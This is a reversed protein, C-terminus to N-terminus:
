DYRDMDIKDAYFEFEKLKLESITQNFGDDKNHNFFDDLYREIRNYKLSREFELKENNYEDRQRKTFGKFDM